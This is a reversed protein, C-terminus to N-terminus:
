VALLFLLPIFVFAQYLFNQPRQTSPNEYPKQCPPARFAKFPNFPYPTFPLTKDHTFANRVSLLCFTEIRSPLQSLHYGVPLTRPGSSNMIKIFSRGSQTLVAM